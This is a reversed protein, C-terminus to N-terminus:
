ETEEERDILKNLITKYDSSYWYSHNSDKYNWYAKFFGQNPDGYSRGKCDEYTEKYSASVLKLPYKLGDIQRDYCGIDIGEGRNDDSSTKGFKLFGLTDTPETSGNYSLSLKKDEKNWWALLGYLDYINGGKALERFYNASYFSGNASYYGCDCNQKYDNDNAFIYGYDWYIDKIYGGGFEKPVLIKYKDGDSLNSRKTTHEARTWSFSGM